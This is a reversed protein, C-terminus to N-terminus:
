DENQKIKQPKSSEYELRTRYCNDSCCSENNNVEGKCVECKNGM